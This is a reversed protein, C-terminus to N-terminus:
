TPWGGRSTSFCYRGVLSTGAPINGAPPHCLAPHHVRRVSWLLMHPAEDTADSGASRKELGILLGSGRPLHQADLARKEWTTIRRRCVDIIYTEYTHIDLTPRATGTDPSSNAQDPQYANFRGLKPLRSAWRGCYCETSSNSRQEATM